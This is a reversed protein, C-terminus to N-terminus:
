NRDLGAVLHDTRDAHRARRAAFLVLDAGIGADGLDRIRQLLTLILGEHHPPANAGDRVMLARPGDKSVGSRPEEPHPEVRELLVIFRYPPCLRAQATGVM